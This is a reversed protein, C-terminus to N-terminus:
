GNQRRSEHQPVYNQKTCETEEVIARYEVFAHARLGNGYLKMRLSPRCSLSSRGV